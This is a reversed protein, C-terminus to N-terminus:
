DARQQLRKLHVRMSVATRLPGKLPGALLREDEELSTTWQPNVYDWNILEDAPNDSLWFGYRDLLDLCTAVGDNYGITIQEGPEIDRTAVVAHMSEDDADPVLLAEMEANPDIADHNLMDVFPVLMRRLHSAMGDNQSVFNVTTFRRSRVIWTAWKLEAPDIKTNQAVAAIADQRELSDKIMRPIQLEKIICPDWFDPTADFNLDNIRPLCNLYAEWHPDKVYSTLFNMAEQVDENDSFTRVSNHLSDFITLSSIMPVALIYEGAQIPEEGCFLGRCSSESDVGIKVQSLGECEKEELFLELERFRHIEERSLSKAVSLLISCRAARKTPALSSFASSFNGNLNLLLWLKSFWLLKLSCRALADQLTLDYIMQLLISSFPYALFCSTIITLTERKFPM